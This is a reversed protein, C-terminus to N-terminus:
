PTSPRVRVRLGSSGTAPLGWLLQASARPTPIESDLLELLLTRREPSYVAVTGRPRPNTASIPVNVVPVVSSRLSISHTALELKTGLPLSAVEVLGNAGWELRRLDSFTSPSFAETGTWLVAPEFGVVRGTFIQCTTTTRVFRGGDLRYSCAAHTPAATVASSVVALQDGARLLLGRPGPPSLPSLGPDWNSIGTSSLETGNFVVRQLTTGHLVVLEDPTALLFEVTGQSHPMGVSEFTTGGTDVFRQISTETATWVVDGAVAIRGSFTRVVRGDRLFNGDCLWGGRRTRELAGCNQSLTQLPAEASRDRAAYLDFQQIGGVPDFAAFVHYRGPKDPTFQLTASSTTPTGIRAQHQVPLNDPGAVEVSLNTPVPPAELETGCGGPIQPAIFLNVQEGVIVV